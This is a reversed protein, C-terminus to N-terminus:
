QGCVRQCGMKIVTVVIIVCRGAAVAAGWNVMGSCRNTGFLADNTYFFHYTCKEIPINYM